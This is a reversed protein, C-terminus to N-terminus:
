WSSVPDVSCGETERAKRDEPWGARQGVQGEARLGEPLLFVLQIPIILIHNTKLNGISNYTM